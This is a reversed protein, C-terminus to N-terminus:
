IMEVANPADAIFNTVHDNRSLVFPYYKVLYVCVDCNASGIVLNAANSATQVFNGGYKRATTIVGDIWAMIYQNPADSGNPLTAKYVEFELETYEEEGYQTSITTTSSKFSAGHASLQIGINEAMNTAIVADYDRCNEVKFIIKFNMGNTRPDTLFM